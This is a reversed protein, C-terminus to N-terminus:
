SITQQETHGTRRHPKRNGIRRESQNKKSRGRCRRRRQEKQKHSTPQIRHSRIKGSRGMSQVLFGRPVGMGEGYGRGRGGKRMGGAGAELRLGAWTRVGVELGQQQM